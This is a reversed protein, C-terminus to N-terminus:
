SIAHRKLQERGPPRRAPRAVRPRHPGTRPLVEVPHPREAPGLRVENLWDALEAPRPRALDGHEAAHSRALQLFRLQKETLPPLIQISANRARERAKSEACGLRRAVEPWGKNHAMAWAVADEWDSWGAREFRQAWLQEATGGWRAIQM